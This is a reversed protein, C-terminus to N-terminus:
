SHNFLIAENMAGSKFLVALEGCPIGSPCSGVKLV